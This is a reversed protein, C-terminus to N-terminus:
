YELNLDYVFTEDITNSSNKDYQDQYDQRSFKQLKECTDKSGSLCAQQFDNKQWQYQSTESIKISDLEGVYEDTTTTKVPAEMCVTENNYLVRVEGPNCDKTLSYESSENAYSASMGTCVFILAISLKKM